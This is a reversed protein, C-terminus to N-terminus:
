EAGELGKVEETTPLSAQAGWRTAAVAGCRVAWRVADVLNEGTVLADALGGCFADGAAAGAYAVAVVDVPAHAQREIVHVAAADAPVADAHCGFRARGHESHSTRDHRHVDVGALGRDHHVVAAVVPDEARRADRRIFLVNSDCQTRRMRFHAAAVQCQIRLFVVFLVFMAQADDPNSQVSAGCFRQVLMGFRRLGRM